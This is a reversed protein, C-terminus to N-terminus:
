GPVTLAHGNDSATIKLLFPVARAAWEQASPYASASDGFCSRLMDTDIIGPNLPVAAMGAPLEDALARTLGEIAWKTACYPAVEPSTTRGWTSSFNVVAGSRREVMAPLFHRVVNATGKINVDILADFEDVPVQWLPANANIMAANNVLMDIPGAALVTESWRHVDADSRIDVVDFRHPADFQDQLQEINAASRACGAVVHGAAVFGEIMARGLGRSVGTVVIRRASM